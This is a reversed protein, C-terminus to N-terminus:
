NASSPNGRARRLFDEVDAVVEGASPLDPAEMGEPLRLDIGPRGGQARNADYQTELRGVVQQLQPTQGVMGSVNALFQHAERRVIGLPTTAGLGRNIAQVLELAVPPNADLGLYFPTVGVLHGTRLGRDRLAISLAGTFGIPGEYQPDLVDVAFSAAMEPDSATIWLPTDRTHPTPGLFTSVSLVEGVRMTQLVDSIADILAGWRLGPEPGSLILVDRASGTPRARHFRLPPWKIVREGGEYRAVPRESHFDYFPDPDITALLEADWQELLFDLATSATEGGHDRFATILIPDQLPRLDGEFQVIDRM